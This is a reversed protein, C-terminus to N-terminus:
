IVIMYEQEEYFYFCNAWSLINYQTQALYLSLESLLVYIVTCTTLSLIIKELLILMDMEEDGTPKFVTTDLVLSKLIYM